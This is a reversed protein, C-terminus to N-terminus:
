RADLYNDYLNVKGRYNLSVCCARGHAWAGRYVVGRICGLPLYLTGVLPRPLEMYATLCITYVMDIIYTLLRLIIRPIYM